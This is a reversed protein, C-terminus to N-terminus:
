LASARTFFAQSMWYAGSAEEPTGAQVKGAIARARCRADPDLGRLQIRPYASGMTTSHMAAVRLSETNL